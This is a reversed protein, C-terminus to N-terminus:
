NLIEGCQLRTKGPGAFLEDLPILREGNRGDIKDKAALSILGPVMDAAPSANGLNGGLTARTRIQYSGLFSASQAIIGFKEKVLPSAELARITTLAGLRLGYASDFRIEDLGPIGKLDILLEPALIKHRMKVLLGTGGALISAREQHKALLYFAEELTSVKRYEFNKM